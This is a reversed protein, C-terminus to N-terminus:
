GGNELWNVGFFQYSSPPYSFEQWPIFTPLGVPVYRTAALHSTVEESKVLGTQGRVVRIVGILAASSRLAPPAARRTAEIPAVSGLRTRRPIRCDIEDAGAFAGVVDRLASAPANM